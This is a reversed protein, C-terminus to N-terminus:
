NKFILTATANEIIEILRVVCILFQVVNFQFCFSSVLGSHDRRTEHTVM